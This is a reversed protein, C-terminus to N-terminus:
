SAIADSVDHVLVERVFKSKRFVELGGICARVEGGGGEGDGEAGRRVM